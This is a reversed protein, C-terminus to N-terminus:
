LNQLTNKYEDYSIKNNLIKVLSNSTINEPLNLKHLLNKRKIISNESGILGDNYLDLKTIKRSNPNEISPEIGAAKIANLLINNEIGEVGLKGEKSKFDKRKEKGYIDPIYAHKIKSNDICSKLYNRIMFGASDSDTIILLGNTDALSRIFNLKEKDKFIRFGDTQIIIADVITSLKIKDYKGEVIIAEKIKIM